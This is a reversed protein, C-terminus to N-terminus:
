GQVRKKGTKHTGGVEKTTIAQFTHPKISSCSMNKHNTINDIMVKKEL